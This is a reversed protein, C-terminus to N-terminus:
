IYIYMIQVTQGGAKKVSWPWSIRGQKGVRNKVEIKEAFQLYNKVRGWAIRSDIHDM